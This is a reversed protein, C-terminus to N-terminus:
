AQLMVCIVPVELKFGGIMLTALRCTEWKGTVLKGAILEKHCPEGM